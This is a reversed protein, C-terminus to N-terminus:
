RNDRDVIFANKGRSSHEVKFIEGLYLVSNEVPKPISEIRQKLKELHKNIWGSKKDILDRIQLKTFRHPVTISVSLDRKICIRAYKVSRKIIKLEYENTNESM